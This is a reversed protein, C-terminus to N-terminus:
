IENGSAFNKSPRSCTLTDAQGWYCRGSPVVRGATVRQLSEHLSASLEYTDQVMMRDLCAARFEMNTSSSVVCGISRLMVWLASCMKEQAKDRLQQDKLTSQLLTNLAATVAERNYRLVDELHLELLEESAMFDSLQSHFPDSHQLFLFLSLNQDVAPIWEPETEQCQARDISYVTDSCLPDSTTSHTPTCTLGSLGLGELALCAPLQQLFASPGLLPLNSPSYLLVQIRTVRTALNPYQLVCPTLVTVPLLHLEGYLGREMAEPPILLPLGGGLVPHVRQCWQGAGVSMPPQTISSAVDMIVTQDKLALREAKGSFIRQYTEGELKLKLHIKVGANTLSLKHLFGETHSWVTCRDLKVESIQFSLLFHLPGYNETFDCLEEPDPDPCHSASPGLRQWFEQQVEKVTVGSCWPGAVAVTCNVVQGSPPQCPAAWLLVLLGGGDVVLSKELRERGWRALLMLSRLVQQIHKMM